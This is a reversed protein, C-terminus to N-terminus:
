HKNLLKESKNIAQLVPFLEQTSTAKSKLEIIERLAEELEREREQSKSRGAIYTEHLHNFLGPQRFAKIPTGFKRMVFEEAEKEIEQHTM